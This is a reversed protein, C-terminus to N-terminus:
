SGDTNKQAKQALQVTGVDGAWTMKKRGKLGRQSKDSISPGLPDAAKEIHNGGFGEGRQEERSRCCIERNIPLCLIGREAGQAARVGARLGILEIAGREIEAQKWKSSVKKKKERV